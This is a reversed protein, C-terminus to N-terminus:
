GGGRGHWEQLLSLRDDAMELACTGRESAMLASSSSLASLSATVAAKPSRTVLLSCTKGISGGRHGVNGRKGKKGLM